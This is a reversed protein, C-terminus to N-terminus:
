LSARICSSLYQRWPVTNAKQSHEKFMRTWLTVDYLINGMNTLIPLSEDHFVKPNGSAWTKWFVAFLVTSWVSQGLADLTCIDWDQLLTDSSMHFRAEGLDPMRCPVSSSTSRTKRLIVVDQAPDTQCLCKQVMNEKTIFREIFLLFAFFFFDVRNLAKPMWIHTKNPDIHRRHVHASCIGDQLLLTFRPHHIKQGAPGRALRFDQM